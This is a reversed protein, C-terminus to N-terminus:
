TAHPAEEATRAARGNAGLQLTAAGGPVPKQEGVNPAYPRSTAPITRNCPTRSARAWQGSSTRAVPRGVPADGSPTQSDKRTPAQPGGAASDARDNLHMPNKGATGFCTTASRIPARQDANRTQESPSPPSGPFQQRRLTAMLFGSFFLQRVFRTSQWKNSLIDIVEAWPMRAIAHPRAACSLLPRDCPGKMVTGLRRRDAGSAAAWEGRWM